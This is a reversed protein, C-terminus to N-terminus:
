FTHVPNQSTSTQGDGFDWSWGVVNADVGTSSDTFQIVLPPAGFSRDMTFGAIPAAPETLTITQNATVQTAIQRSSNPFIFIVSDARTATGLGFWAQLGSSSNGGSQSTVERTQWISQGNITAKVRVRSGDAFNNSRLGQGKVVLWSKETGSHKYLFNASGYNAVYLDLDGDADYDAFASGHSSGADTLISGMIVGPMGSRLRTFTGDHNNQYIANM